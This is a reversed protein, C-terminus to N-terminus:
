LGNPYHNHNNILIRSPSISKFYNVGDRKGPCPKTNCIENEQERKERRGSNDSLLCDLGGNVSSPNNCLRNRHRRGGGCTRSCQTM